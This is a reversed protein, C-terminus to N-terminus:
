GIVPLATAIPWAVVLSGVLAILWSPAGHRNLVASWGAQVLLLVALLPVVLLVFGYTIGVVAAGTLASVVVASVALVGFSNGASIREGAYALLAFGAWVVALLWWRRAGVPTAHTLGLHLPVAITVAAYGLLLPTALAPRWRAPATPRWRLYLLIVLGTTATLGVVYNGVALPLDHTPLLRAAPVAVATAM